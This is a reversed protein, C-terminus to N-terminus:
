WISLPLRSSSFALGLSVSVGERGLQTGSNFTRYDAQGTLSINDRITYSFNGGGQWSSFGNLDLSVSSTRTWGGSFGVSVRKLGQYSYGAHATTRTSALFVGNGGGIGQSVTAFFRGRSQQYSVGGSYSPRRRSREFFATSSTRGLIAAVEPSLQVVETGSSRIFLIGGQAHLVLARTLSREFRLSVGNAHSQALVRPYEFKIFSYDATLTDHSNLRYIIAGQARYGQSNILAFSSRKVFFVDGGGAFSLRASKQYSGYLGTQAFYTRVDFLENVPAGLQAQNPFAPAAFGGFARNTTGGTLRYDLQFRRTLRNTYDLALVQNTGNNRQRLTQHRYDARFDLGVSSRRWNHGGYIGAETTVGANNASRLSGDADLSPALLGTEYQGRVSAYYTFDVPAAGRRGPSNGGRSLISPGGYGQAALQSEAGALTILFLLAFSRCLREPHRASIM